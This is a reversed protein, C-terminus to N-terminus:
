DAVMVTEIVRVVSVLAEPDSQKAFAAGAAIAPGSGRRLPELVITAYIGLEEAQVGAFFRFDHAPLVIPPAFLESAVV